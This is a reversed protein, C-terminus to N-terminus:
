AKLRSTCFACRSAGIPVNSLCYPCTKRDAPKKKKFKSAPKIIFFFVAVAISLFVIVSNILPGILFTSGNITYAISAFNVHGPLGILPTIIDTVLSTILANFAAGMVFAVALDIVDGKSVFDKFESVLSM